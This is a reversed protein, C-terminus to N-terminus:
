NILAERWSLTVGPGTPRAENEGPNWLVHGLAPITTLPREELVAVMREIEVQQRITGLARADLDPGEAQHRVLNRHCHV